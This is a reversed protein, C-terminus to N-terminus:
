LCELFDATQYVFMVNHCQRKSIGCELFFSSIIKKYFFLVFVFTGRIRGSNDNKYM